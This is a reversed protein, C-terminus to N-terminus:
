ECRSYKPELSTSLLEELVAPLAQSQVVPEVDDVVVEDDVEEDVAEKKPM